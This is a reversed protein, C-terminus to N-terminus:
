YKYAYIGDFEPDYPELWFKHFLAHMEERELKGNKDTDAKLFFTYAAEEPVRFVNMMRKLEPLSVLNDGDEDLVDYYANGLLAVISPDGRRKREREMEAFAQNAEVWNERHLSPNLGCFEFFCKIAGRVDEVEEDNAQCLCKMRDAWYLVEEITMFGDSNKDFTDFRRYLRLKLAPHCEDPDYQYNNGHERLYEYAKNNKANLKPIHKMEDPDVGEREFDMMIAANMKYEEEREKKDEEMEEVREEFNDDMGISKFYALTEEGPALNDVDFKKDVDEVASADEGKGVKKMYARTKDSEADADSLLPTHLSCPQAQPM